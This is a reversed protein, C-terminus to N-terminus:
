INLVSKRAERFNNQKNNEKMKNDKFLFIKERISKEKNYDERDYDLLESLIFKYKEKLKTMELYKKNAVSNINKNNKYNRESSKQTIKNNYTINNNISKGWIDGGEVADLGASKRLENFTAAELNYLQSVNMFTEGRSYLNVEGTNLFLDESLFSYVKKLNETIIKNFFSEYYNKLTNISIEFPIKAESATAMSSDQSFATMFNPILSSGSDKRLFEVENSMMNDNGTFGLDESVFKKNVLLSDEEELYLFEDRIKDLESMDVGEGDENFFGIIKKSLSRYKAILSWNKLIEASIDENDIASSLLGDGYFPSKSWLLKFHLLKEKSLGIGWVNNNWVLGGYVYSIPFYKLNLDRTRYVEIPYEVVWYDEKENKSNLNLFISSPCNVNYLMDLVEINSNKIKKYIPEIYGNGCGLSIMVFNFLEQKLLDRQELWENAFVSSKEDSSIFRLDSMVFLAIQRLGSMISTRNEIMDEVKGMRYHPTMINEKNLSQRFRTVGINSAVRNNKKFNINEIGLKQNRSIENYYEKQKINNLIDKINM